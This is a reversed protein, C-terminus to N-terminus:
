IDSINSRVANVLRIVDTFREDRTSGLVTVIIPRDMGADFAITLNGGALDTYGTKSGLLNPIAYLAENTNEIDHFEGQSNYIRAGGLTTSEILEPYNALIYEMLYSVEKASGVAGAESPSIDLGTTNKFKLTELELEEARINMGEVFQRSPDKDGLLAGTSAGLQYAADNSSTILALRSLNELTIEEGAELGNGGEQAIAKTSLRTDTDLAALEYALMATMLKTISALPLVEDENKMYLARKGKIDWVYAAKARVTVDSLAEPANDEIRPKAEITNIDVTDQVSATQKPGMLITSFLGALIILLVGVQFIIVIRRESIISDVRRM